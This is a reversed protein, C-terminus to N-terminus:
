GWKREANRGSTTIHPSKKEITKEKEKKVQFIREWSNAKRNDCGKNEKGLFVAESDPMGVLIYQVM